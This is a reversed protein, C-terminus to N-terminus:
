NKGVNDGTADPDDESEVRSHKLDDISTQDALGVGAQYAARALLHASVPTTLVLFIIGLMARLAVAGDLSVLAVALLILGAGVLGAKSAAHMRTYLDPLRLLGIAALLSFLSGIVIILAAVAQAIQVVM